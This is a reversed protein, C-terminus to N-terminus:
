SPNPQDINRGIPVYKEIIADLPVSDLLMTALAKVTAAGIERYSAPTLQTQAAPGIDLGGFSMELTYAYPIQYRHHLAVRMTGPFAQSPFTTSATLDFLPTTKSMIRPFFQEYENFGVEDNWVGYTFSNCQASHGHFDLLFLVPRTRVLKDLLSTIEYEVPHHKRNPTIWSRNMDYGTLSPRYYGCIVGDVNIMPLLLFSFNKLLRSPDKGRGFLTKMFEEMALSAVTEGPHHRAAIVVLPKKTARASKPPCYLTEFPQCKHADADWFIAPVEVGGHSRAITSYGITPQSKLWKTLDSYTYPYLYAFYMTDTETVIFTFTLAYQPTRGRKCCWYDIDNGFRYWGTGRAAENMSLAVPQVGLQHLHAERFFGMITFTYEGPSLDEVKFFYWFASYYPTPDPILHIEYHRHGVLFVQGLNGGEFDGFFRPPHRSTPAATPDYVPTRTFGTRRIVPHFNRYRLPAPPHGNPANLSTPHQLRALPKIHFSPISLKGKM